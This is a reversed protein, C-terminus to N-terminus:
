KAEDEKKSKILFVGDYGAFKVLRKTYDEDVQMCYQELAAYAIAGTLLGTVFSLFTKM